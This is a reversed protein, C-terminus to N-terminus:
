NKRFYIYAANINEDYLFHNSQAPDYVPVGTSVNFYQLDNDASVLSSKIGTEFKAGNKLPHVYDAKVSKIDLRGLVNGTRIDVPKLTSGDNKFFRTVFYQNDVNRYSAYDLDIAFEKGTSDFSHKFNVNVAYHRLTDKTTSENVDYSEKQRFADLVDSHNNSSSLFTNHIGSLVM